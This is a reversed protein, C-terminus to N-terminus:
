CIAHDIIHEASTSALYHIFALIKCLVLSYSFFFFTFLLFLLLEDSLNLMYSQCQCATTVFLNVPGTNGKRVLWLLYIWNQFIGSIRYWLMMEAKELRQYRTCKSLICIFIYRQPYLDCYINCFASSFHCKWEDGNEEQTTLNDGYFGLFFFTTGM